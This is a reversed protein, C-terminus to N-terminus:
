LSGRDLAARGAALYAELAALGAAFSRRGLGWRCHADGFDFLTAPALLVGAEEVAARCFAAASGERLRPFAVPGALPARWAFREAHRDMFGRVLTLNDRIIGVNRAILADANQLAIRALVESPASSCITTYDKHTLLSQVLARDQTALWGIRLGALGFTKSMGWLSVARPYCDAAAPLRQAPDYELGRYMEDCLLWAGWRAAIAILDQFQQATPVYGTPNHPFNVVILRTDPTVLDGLRDLDMQWRASTESMAWPQVTAGRFRALEALSQYCPTQVVVRDGPGVLSWMALFIAEEPANTVVVQDPSISDYFGAITARLGPDGQSETYGLRLDMLLDPPQGALRLLEGISMSECDSCALLHPASFEHLAFFRELQFPRITM